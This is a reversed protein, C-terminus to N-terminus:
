FKTPDGNLPSSFKWRWSALRSLSFVYLWVTPTYNSIRAQQSDSLLIHITISVQTLRYESQWTYKM